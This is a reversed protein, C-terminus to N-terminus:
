LLNLDDVPNSVRLEKGEFYSFEAGINLIEDEPCEFIDETLVVLNALKGTEISGMIHDLRMRKANIRTYGDLLQKLTFKASAPPRCGDEYLSFNFNSMLPEVRTMGVQIGLFPNVRVLGTPDVTDSSFGVLPGDELIATFDMMNRWREEGFFTKPAEEPDGAWHPTFDVYMGLEAIRHVDDPHIIECHALTVLISWDDGCIEQAAEVADCMVRFSGDAVCHVHFDLKEENLRVLVDRIEEMTAHAEGYNKGEPDNYFPETSLVDGFETSGDMFFKVTNCRIHETGYTKQYRKAREIAVEINEVRDLMSCGDYYLNLEGKQDLEHIFQINEESEIVADMICTIGYHKYTDFVIAGTEETFSQPPRWNIAEFVGIDGVSMSQHCWGTYEGNEDQVFNPEAIPSLSRPIGNEDKLMELAVSNYLCGHGTDDQIRAPRDSIVADLDKKHPGEEGFTSSMYRAYCFYPKEEKPYKEAMEKINAFLEDKDETIPGYVVWLGRAMIGPHTHGDIFGPLVTKGKLDVVEFKDDQAEAFSKVDGNSGVATFRDDEIAVAEAWEMDPNETWIKGNILIKKVM